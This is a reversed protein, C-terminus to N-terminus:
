SFKKLRFVQISHESFAFNVVQTSFEHSGDRKIKQIPTSTDMWGQRLPNKYFVLRGHVDRSYGSSLPIVDIIGDALEVLLREWADDPGQIFYRARDEDWHTWKEGGNEIYGGGDICGGAGIWESKPGGGTVNKNKQGQIMSLYYEQDIDQSASIVLGSVFLNNYIVPHSINGLKTHQNMWEQLILTFKLALTSGVMTALSSLQDLIILVTTPSPESNTTNDLRDENSNLVWTQIRRYLDRLYTEANWEDGQNNGSLYQAGMEEPISIVNVNHIYRKNRNWAESSEIPQSATLSVKISNDCVAVGMRKLTSHIQTPTSTGCTIWVVRRRKMGLAINHIWQSTATDEMSKKTNTLPLSWTLYQRVITYLLFQGDTEVSDHILITRGGHIPFDGWPLVDQIPVTSSTLSM